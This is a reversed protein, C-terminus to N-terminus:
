LSVPSQADKVEVTLGKRRLQEAYITEWQLLVSELSYRQRVFVRAAEGMCHRQEEPLAMLRLMAASLSEADRPPVLYGTQGEQVVERNGGVDTAVMPLGTSAAELLVMPLGEWASSMVYGDAANMLAAVDKRLGLFRVAQGLGLTQALQQTSEMQEGLGAIMLRAEPQLAHVKAFAQMMNPYDKAEAFRGVALWIFQGEWGLEERLKARLHPDPSFEHSNIGNPVFRIKNMPVAGVGVYRELGAQSVQTTLDCLPDTLRYAIERWRSGENVNHATSILVPVSALLRAVRGLLNAHVMHTHVIQPKQARLYRALALVARPDPSGPKMHLSVAPIQAQELDKAIYEMPILSVVSVQWGRGKLGTALRVLQTEAGGMGLTTIVFVIRKPVVRNM